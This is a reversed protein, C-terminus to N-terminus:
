PRLTWSLMVTHTRVYVAPNCPLTGRAELSVPRAERSSFMKVFDDIAVDFAMTPLGDKDVLQLAIAKDNQGRGDRREISQQDAM